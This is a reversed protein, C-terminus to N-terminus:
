AAYKTRRILLGLHAKVDALLVGPNQQNTRHRYAREIAALVLDESPADAPTPEQTPM